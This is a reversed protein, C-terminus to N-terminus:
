PIATASRAPASAGHPTRRGKEGVGIQLRPELPEGGDQASRGGSLRAAQVLPDAPERGGIGLADGLRISRSRSMAQDSRESSSSLRRLTRASAPPDLGCPRRRLGDRHEPVQVRHEVADVAHLNAAAVGGADGSRNTSSRPRRRVAADGLQVSSPRAASNAARAPPPVGRSGSCRRAACRVPPHAEGEGVLDGPLDAAQPVVDAEQATFDGGVGIRCPRRRGRDLKVRDVRVGAPRRDARDGLRVAMRHVVADDVAGGALRPSMWAQRFPSMSLKWSSRSADELAGAAADVGLDRGVGLDDGQLDLVM